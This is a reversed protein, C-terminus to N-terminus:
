CDNLAQVQSTITGATWDFNVTANNNWTGIISCQVDLPGYGWSNNVVKNGTVNPFSGGTLRLSFGGGAVVNDTVNGGANGQDPIFIPATPCPDARQDITNHHITAFMGGYGQIGDGHPDDANCQAQTVKLRAYSHEITVPGAGSFGSAGVRWGEARDVVKCRRCTFNSTGFVHGYDWSETQGPPLVVESDEIVMHGYVTNTVFNDIGGYARTKKITVNNARVDIMGTVLYNEITRNPKSSIFAETIVLDGNITTSPSWGSPVGTCSAIPYKPLDCSSSSSGGGSSGGGSSGGGSSGGGSSGGASGGSSGGGSSGGSPTSPKSPEPPNNNFQVYKGGSAENHAVVKAGGSLVGAEAELFPKGKAAAVIGVVVAVVIITGCMFIAVRHHQFFYGLKNGMTMGQPVASGVMVGSGSSHADSPTALRKTFSLYKFILFGLAGLIVLACGGIVWVNVVKDVPTQLPAPAEEAASPPTQVPVAPCNSGNGNPVCDGAILMVKDVGAGVERGAVTVTHEGAKLSFTVRKSTDNSQYNVWAFDKQAVGQGVPVPCHSDIKVAMGNRNNATGLLRLWLTYTGEKELTVKGVVWGKDNPMADCAAQVPQTPGTFAFLGGLLLLGLLYRIRTV